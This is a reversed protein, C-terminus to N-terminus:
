RDRSSIIGLSARSRKRRQFCRDFRSSAALTGRTGSWTDGFTSEFGKYLGLPGATRTIQIACDVVGRYQRASSQDQLRIKVLEFPVVVFAETAGASAGTAVALLQSGPDAGLSSYIRAWSDNAAFKTARSLTDVEEPNGDINSGCYRSVFPPVESIGAVAGALLQPLFPPGTESWRGWM